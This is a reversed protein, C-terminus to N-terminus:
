KGAERREFDIASITAAAEAVGLREATEAARRADDYRGLRLLTQAYMLQGGGDDPAAKLAHELRKAAKDYEAARFEVAAAQAALRPDDPRLDAMQERLEKERTLRGVGFMVNAAIGLVQVDAPSKQVAEEVLALGEAMRGRVGRLMLGLNLLLPGNGPDRKIGERFATEADRTRGQSFRIYGILGFAEAIEHNTALPSGSVKTAADLAEDDQKAKWLGRAVLLQVKPEGPALGSARTLAALGEEIRGVKTLAWGYQATKLADEPSKRVEAALTDLNEKVEDTLPVYRTRLDPPGAAPDGTNQARCPALLLLAAAGALAAGRFSAAWFVQGDRHSM